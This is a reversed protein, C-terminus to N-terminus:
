RSKKSRKQRVRLELPNESAEIGDEEDILILVGIREDHGGQQLIEERGPLSREDTEKTIVPLRDISLVILEGLEGSTRCPQCSLGRWMPKPFGASGM